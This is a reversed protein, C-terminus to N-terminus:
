PCIAGNCVNSSAPVQLATGGVQAGGSNNSAFNNQSYAAAGELGYSKNNSVSNNTVVGLGILIGDQYNDAIINRSVTATSYGADIGHGRNIIAASDTITARLPVVIGSGNNGNSVVGQVTARGGVYIGDFGNSLATCDRVIGDAIHIGRGNNNTSMLREVRTMTGVVYIGSNGMGSITGNSISIQKSVSEIGVGSGSLSCSSVPFGACVTPGLIAFGNLDVSVNDATISIGKTNADPLTLNSTLRYSGPQSIVYPFGGAATVKAQNIEIVGDTAHAAIPATLIIALFITMIFQKM